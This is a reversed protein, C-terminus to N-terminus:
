KLKLFDESSRYLTIPYGTKRAAFGIALAGLKDLEDRKRKVVRTINKFIVRYSQLIISRRLWLGSTDQVGLSGLMM